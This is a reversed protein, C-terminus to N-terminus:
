NLKGTPPTFSATYLAVGNSFRFDDIYGRFSNNSADSSQSGIGIQSSFVTNNTYNYSGNDSFELGGNMWLKIVGSQRTLAIHTWSNALMTANGSQYSSYQGANYKNRGIVTPHPPTHGTYSTTVAITNANSSEPGFAFIGYNQTTFAAGQPYAWCEVTFDGKISAVTSVGNVILCSSNLFVSSNGYKVITNSLVPKNSGAWNVNLDTITELPLGTTANATDMNLLVTTNASTLTLNTFGFAATNSLGTSNDMVLVTFSTTTNTGVHPLVGSILGNSYFTVGNPMSGANLSYYLANVSNAVVTYSISNGEYASGLNSGPTTVWVPAVDINISNMTFTRTNSVSWVSDTATVSFTATTNSSVNAVIGSILGNASLTLGSPLSGSALSYTLSHVSNAVVYTNVTSRENFNGLTSNTTWTPVPNDFVTFSLAGSNATKLGDSASIYFTSTTDSSVLSAVGSILGNSALALGSPLSGAGISYTVTNGEPDVAVLRVSVASNENAAGVNGTNSWVPPNNYLASVTFNSYVNFSGDTAVVNAYLNTNSGIAPYTGYITANTTLEGTPVIFSSGTYLAVGNTIRVDDINGKFANDVRGSSQSGIAFTSTSVVTNGIAAGGTFQRIGNLYVNYIGSQRTLAVHQWQNVQVASIGSSYSTFTSGGADKGEVSLFDFVYSITLMLHSAAASDGFSLVGYNRSDTTPNGSPRIWAEATFDGSLTFANALDVKIAGNGDLSLSNAGFKTISNSLTPVVGMYSTTFNGATDLPIPYSVANVTTTGLSSMNVLINAKGNNFAITNSLSNSALSYTIPTGNPDYASLQAYLPTGEYGTAVPSANSTIWVPAYNIDEDTLSFTRSNTLGSLSDTAIVTFNTSTNSNVLPMTGSILGNSAFSVGAPLSSGNSLAYSLSNVSNAIVYTHIASNELFNGLNSPTFWVPAVDVNVVNLTFTRTKVKTLEGATKTADATFSYPDSSTSTPATGHILGNSALSVGAPLSGSNVTYTAPTGDVQIYTHIESREDFSGLDAATTWDFDPLVPINKNKLTLTTFAGKISFGMHPKDGSNQLM